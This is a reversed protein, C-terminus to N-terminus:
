QKNEPVYKYLYQTAGSHVVLGDVHIHRVRKVTPLVEQMHCPKALQRMRHEPRWSQLLEDYLKGQLNPGEWRFTFELDGPLSCNDHEADFYFLNRTVIVVGNLISAWVSSNACFFWRCRPKGVFKVAKFGGDFPVLGDNVPVGITIVGSFLTCLERRFTSILLPMDKSYEKWAAMYAEEFDYYDVEPYPIKRGYKLEEETPDYRTYFWKPLRTYSGYLPFKKYGLITWVLGWFMLGLEGERAPVKSVMRYPKGNKRRHVLDYSCIWEGRYESDKHREFDTYGHFLTFYPTNVSFGLSARYGDLFDVLKSKKKSMGTRKYAGM